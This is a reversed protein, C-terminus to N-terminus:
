QPLSEGGAEARVRQGFYFRAICSLGGIPTGHFAQCNFQRKFRASSLVAVPAFNNSVAPFTHNGLGLCFEALDSIKLRFQTHTFGTNENTLHPM